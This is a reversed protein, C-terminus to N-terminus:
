KRKPYPTGRYVNHRRESQTYGNSYTNNYTYQARFSPKPHYNQYNQNTNQINRYNNRSQYSRYNRTSPHDHLAQYTIINNNFANRSRSRMNNYQNHHFTNKHNIHNNNNNMIPRFNVRKFNTRKRMQSQRNTNQNNNYNNRSKSRSRSINRPGSTSKKNEIKNRNRNHEKYHSKIAALEKNNFLNELLNNTTLVNNQAIEEDTQVAIENTEVKINKETRNNDVISQFTYQPPCYFNKIIAIVDANRPQPTELKNRNKMKYKKIFYRNVINDKCKQHLYQSFEFKIEEGEDNISWLKRDVFEKVLIEITNDDWYCPFYLYADKKNRFIIMQDKNNNQNKGDICQYYYYSTPNYRSGTFPVQRKISIKPEILRPKSFKYSNKGGEQYILNDFNLQRNTNNNSLNYNNIREKNIVHPTRSLEFIGENASKRQSERFIDRYQKYQPLNSTENLNARQSQSSIQKMEAHNYENMNKQREFPIESEVNNNQQQPIVESYALVHQNINPNENFDQSYELFDSNNM